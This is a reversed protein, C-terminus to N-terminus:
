KIYFQFSGEFEIEESVIIGDERKIAVGSYSGAVLEGEETGKDTFEIISYFEENSVYSFPADLSDLSNLSMAINEQFMAPAVVLDYILQFNMSAVIQEVDMGTNQNFVVSHLIGSYWRYNEGDIDLSVFEEIEECVAIEGLDNTIDVDFAMVLSENNTDFDYIIIEAQRADCSNVGFEFYGNDQIPAYYTRENVTLIAEGNMVPLDNCDLATGFIKSIDQADNIMITGLDTDEDYPGYIQKFLEVGCEDLVTLTFIEGQPFNVFVFCGDHSLNGGTVNINDGEIFVQSYSVASTDGDIIRKIKGRLEMIDGKTDVNFSSFHSVEGVYNSGQIEASGEEIWYGQAEDYTWLPISQPAKSILSNPIPFTLTAQADDALNLENGSPDFLSVQMMGFTSLARIQGQDDIGSLDGVVEQRLNASSPDIWAMAVNVSGSYKQGQANVIGGAPLQVKAGSPLSVSGGTNSMVSGVNQLANLKIDTVNYSGEILGVRRFGDFFGENRVTIFASKGLNSIDRFFFHGKDDTTTTIPSQSSNLTVSAGPLPQGNEDLVSGWLSSLVIPKSRHEISSVTERIEDQVCQTLGLLLVLALLRVLHKMDYIKRRSFVYLHKRQM